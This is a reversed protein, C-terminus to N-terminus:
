FSLFRHFIGFNLFEFAVNQTIKLCQTDSSMEQVTSTTSSPPCKRLYCPRKQSSSGLCDAGGYQPRPNTCTRSRIVSGKGCSQSCASWQSWLTWQGGIPQCTRSAQCERVELHPGQCEFGGNEPKPQDCLRFRSKFGPGCTANCYSFRSWQGWSGHVPCSHAVCKEVEEKSKEQDLCAIGGYKADEEVQRQRSRTGTGCSQSCSTWEGWQSWQCNIPCKNVLCIDKEWETKPQTCNTSSRSRSRQGPSQGCSKSCASWETWQGWQCEANLVVPAVSEIITLIADALGPGINSSTTSCNIFVVGSPGAYLTNGIWTELTLSVTRNCAEQSFNAQCQYHESDIKTVNFSPCLVGSSGEEELEYLLVFKDVCSIMKDGIEETGWSINAVSPLFGGPFTLNRIQDDDIVDDITSCNATSTAEVGLDQILTICCFIILHKKM